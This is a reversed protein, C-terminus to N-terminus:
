LSLTRNIRYPCCSNHPANVESQQLCSVVKIKMYTAQHETKMMSEQDFFTQVPVKASRGPRDLANQTPSSLLLKSLITSACQVRHYWCVTTLYVHWGSGASPRPCGNLDKKEVRHSM